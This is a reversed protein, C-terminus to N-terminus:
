SSSHTDASTSHLIAIPSPPSPPFLRGDLIRRTLISIYALRLYPDSDGETAFLSEEIEEAVRRQAAEAAGVMYRTVGM